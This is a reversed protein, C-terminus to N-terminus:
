WDGDKGLRLRQLATDHGEVRKDLTDIQRQIGVVQERLAGMAESINALYRLGAGMMVLALGAAAGSLYVRVPGHHEIKPLTPPM